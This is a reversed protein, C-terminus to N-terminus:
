KNYMALEVQEASGAKMKSDYCGAAVITKRFFM